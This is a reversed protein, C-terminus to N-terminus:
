HRYERRSSHSRTTYRDRSDFHSGGRSGREEEFKHSNLKGGSKLYAQYDWWEDFSDTHYDREEKAKLYSAYSNNSFLSSLFGIINMSQSGM